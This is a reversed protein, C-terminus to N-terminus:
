FYFSSPEIGLQSIAYMMRNKVNEVNKELINSALLDISSLNKSNM